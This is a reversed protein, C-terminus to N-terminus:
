AGSDAEALKKIEGVIIEPDANHMTAGFAITEINLGPCTFCGTGFYKRIVEEAGPITKIVEGIVSDRTVEIKTTM